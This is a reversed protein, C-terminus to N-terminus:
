LKTALVCAYVYFFESVPPPSLCLVTSSYRILSSFFRFCGEIHLLNYFYIFDYNEMSCCSVFIDVPFLTAKKKYCQEAMIINKSDENGLM